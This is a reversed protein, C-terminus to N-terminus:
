INRHLLAVVDTLATLNVAGDPQLRCLRQGYLEHGSAQAAHQAIPTPWGTSAAATYQYTAQNYCPSMQDITMAEALHSQRRSAYQEWVQFHVSPWWWKEKRHSSIRKDPTLTTGVYLCVGDIDFLVYVWSPACYNEWRM